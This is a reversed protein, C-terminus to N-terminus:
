PFRERKEPHKTKMRKLEHIHPSERNTNIFIRMSCKGVKNSPELFAELMSGNVRLVGFGLLIRQHLSVTPLFPRPINGVTDEASLHRHTHLWWGPQSLGIEDEDDCTTEQNRFTGFHNQVFCTLISGTDLTCVGLDRLNGMDKKPPLVSNPSMCWTDWEGYPRLFGEVKMCWSLYVFALMRIDM